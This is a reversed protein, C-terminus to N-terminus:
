YTLLGLILERFSSNIQYKKIYDSWYWYQSYVSVQPSCFTVLYCSVISVSLFLMERDGGEGSPDDFFLSLGRAPKVIALVLTLAPMESPENSNEITAKAYM